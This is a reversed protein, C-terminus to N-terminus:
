VARQIIGGGGRKSANGSSAGDTKIKYKEPMNDRQVIDGLLQKRARDLQNEVMVAMTMMANYDVVPDYCTLMGQHFVDGLSSFLIVLIGDRTAFNKGRIKIANGNTMVVHAEFGRPYELMKLFGYLSEALSEKYSFSGHKRLDLKNLSEDDKKKKVEQNIGEVQAVVKDGQKKNDQGTQLVESTEADAEMEKAEQARFKTLKGFKDKEKSENTVVIEEKVM